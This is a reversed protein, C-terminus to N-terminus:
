LNVDFTDTAWELCGGLCCEVGENARSAFVSPIFAALKGGNMGLWFEPPPLDDSDFFGETVEEAIGDYMTSSPDFILIRGAVVWGQHSKKIMRNRREIVQKIMVSFLDVYTSSTGNEQFLKFLFGRDTLCWFEDPYCCHFQVVDLLSEKMTEWIKEQFFDM